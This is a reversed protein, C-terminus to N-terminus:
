PLKVIDKNEVLNESFGDIDRHERTLKGYLIDIAYGGGFFTKIALNASVTYIDRMLELQKKTKETM